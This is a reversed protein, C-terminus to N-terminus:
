KARWGKFARKFMNRLEAGADLKTPDFLVFILDSREVFWRCVGGYDYRRGRMDNATELVGPTDVLIVRKLLEHQVSVGTLNELFSEGFEALGKFPLEKSNALVHGDVNEQADGYMVVTFEATTPQPGTWLYNDQLLHNIFTSKGASWPGFFTIIPRQSSLREEFWSPRLVEFMYMDELPKVGKQYVESLRSTFEEISDADSFGGSMDTVMVDQAKM